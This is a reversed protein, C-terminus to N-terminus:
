STLCNGRLLTLCNQHIGERAVRGYTKDGEERGSRSCEGTEVGCRDEKRRKREFERKEVKRVSRNEAVKKPPLLREETFTM